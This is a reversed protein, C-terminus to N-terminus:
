LLRWGTGNRSGTGGPCLGAGTAVVGKPRKVLTIQKSASKGACDRTFASTIIIGPNSHGAIPGECIGIAFSQSYSYTTTNVDQGSQVGKGGVTTSTTTSTELIPTSWIMNGAIRGSGYVKPITAGYKSTQVKLDGLRPGQQNITPQSPAFVLGGITSGIIWGLQPSGFLSGVAAGAVGLVLQGM